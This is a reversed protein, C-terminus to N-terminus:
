HETRATGQWDTYVTKGTPTQSTSISFKAMNLKITCNTPRPPARESGVGRFRMRERESILVFHATHGMNLAGKYYTNFFGVGGSFGKQVKM